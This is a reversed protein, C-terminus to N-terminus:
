QSAARPGRGRWDASFGNPIRYIRAAYGVNPDVQTQAPPDYGAESLWAPTRSGRSALRRPDPRARRHAGALLRARRHRRDHFEGLTLPQRDRLGGGATV